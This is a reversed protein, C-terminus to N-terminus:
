FRHVNMFGTLDEYRQFSCRETRNPHLGESLCALKRQFRDKEEASLPRYKQLDQIDELMSRKSFLLKLTLEVYEILNPQPLGEMGRIEYHMEWREMASMAAYADVRRLDPDTILNESLWVCQMSDNQRISAEPPIDSGMVWTNFELPTSTYTNYETQGDVVSLISTRARLYGDPINAAPLTMHFFSAQLFLLSGLLSLHFSLRIVGRLDKFHALTLFLWFVTGWRTITLFQEFTTPGKSSAGFQAWAEVCFTTTMAMITMFRAGVLWLFFILTLLVLQFAFLAALRNRNERQSSKARRREWRYTGTGRM